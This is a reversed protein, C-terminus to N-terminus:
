VKKRKILGASLVNVVPAQPQPEVEAEAEAEAKAKVVVSEIEIRKRKVMAQLNNVQAGGPVDGQKEEMESDGVTVVVMPEPGRIKERLFADFEKTSRTGTELMSFDAMMLKNWALTYEQHNLRKLVKEDKEKGEETEIERDAGQEGIRVVFFGAVRGAGCEEGIALLEWFERVTIGEGEEEEDNGGEGPEYTRLARSKADDPFRPVVTRARANPDYPMGYIWRSPGAAAAPTTDRITTIAERETEIGPIFWWAKIENASTTAVNDKRGDASDLAKFSETLVRKWWKMLGRDDQARKLKNKASKAFLYQPQARAFVHVDTEASLSALYAAVLARTPSSSSSRSWYGSTDVKSIYSVRSPTPSTTSYELAELGCVLIEPALSSANSDDQFELSDCHSVLLLRHVITCKPDTSDLAPILPDCPEPDTSLNYIKFIHKGRIRSFAESLSRELIASSFDTM